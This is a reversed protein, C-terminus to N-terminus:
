SPPSLVGSDLAISRVDGGPPPEFAPSLSVGHVGEPAGDIRPLTVTRVARVSLCAVLAVAAALFHREVPPAVTLVPAAV